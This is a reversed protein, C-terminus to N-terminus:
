PALASDKWAQRAFRESQGSACRLAPIAYARDPLGSAARTLKWSASIM